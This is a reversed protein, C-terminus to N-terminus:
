GTLVEDQGLTDSGRELLYKEDLFVSLSNLAQEFADIVSTDNGTLLAHTRATTNLTTVALSLSNSIRSLADVDCPQRSRLLDELLANLASHIKFLRKVVVRLMNIEYSYDKSSSGRLGAQEEPSFHKAYLGHKLANTNGKPAGM